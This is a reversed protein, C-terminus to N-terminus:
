FFKQILKDISFVKWDQYKYAPELIQIENGTTKKIIDCCSIESGMFM